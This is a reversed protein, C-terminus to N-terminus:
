HTHGCFGKGLRRDEREYLVAVRDSVYPVMVHSAFTPRRRSTSAATSLFFATFVPGVDRYAPQFGANCQCCRGSTDQSSRLAHFPSKQCRRLFGSFGILSETTLLEVRTTEPPALCRASRHRGQEVRVVAPRALVGAIPLADLPPLSQASPNACHANVWASRATADYSPMCGWTNSM